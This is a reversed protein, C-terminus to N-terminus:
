LIKPNRQCWLCGQITGPDVCVMSGRETLTDKSEKSMISM